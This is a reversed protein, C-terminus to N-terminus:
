AAPREGTGDEPSRPRKGGERRRHFYVAGLRLGPMTLAGFGQAVARAEKAAQGGVFRFLMAFGALPLFIVYLAGLLPALALMLVAPIKVHRSQEPGGLKGGQPGIATLELTRTNLYFGAEVIQGAYHRKM